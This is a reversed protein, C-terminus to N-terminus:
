VGQTIELMNDGPDRVFFRKQGRVPDDDAIIQIGAEEFQQQAIEIDSVQYCVHRDSLENQAGDEISLHLQSNGLEYWAGVYQRPGVPKPLRPLGLVDGYFHKAAEELAAPVTVNVHNLRIIGISM